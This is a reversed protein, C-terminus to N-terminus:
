SAVSTKLKAKLDLVPEIANVARLLANRAPRGLLGENWDYTDCLARAATYVRQLKLQEAAKQIGDMTLPKDTVM